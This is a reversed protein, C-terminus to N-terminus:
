RAVGLPSMLPDVEYHDQITRLERLAPTPGGRARIVIAIHTRGRTLTFPVAFEVVSQVGPPATFTRSAILRDDVVVDYSRSVGRGSSDLGVFTGAITVETDDFTALSYHMWGTAQRFPKGDALGVIAEHGEFGHTAESRPDGAEAVDVVRRDRRLAATAFLCASLALLLTAARRSV